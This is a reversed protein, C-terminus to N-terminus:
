LSIRRLSVSVAKAAVAFKWMVASLYGMAAVQERATMRGFGSPEGTITAVYKKWAKRKHRLNM